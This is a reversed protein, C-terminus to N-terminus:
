PRSQLTERQAGTRAHRRGARPTNAQRSGASGAADSSRTPDSRCRRSQRQGQQQQQQQQPPPPRANAQQADSCGEAVGNCRSQVQFCRQQPLM